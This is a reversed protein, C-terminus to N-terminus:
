RQGEKHENVLQSMKGEGLDEMHTHLLEIQEEVRPDTQHTKLLKVAFPMHLEERGVLVLFPFFMGLARFPADTPQGYATVAGNGAHHILCM